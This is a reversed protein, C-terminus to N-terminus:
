RREPLAEIAAEAGWRALEVASLWRTGGQPYRRANM